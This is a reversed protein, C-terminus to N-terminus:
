KKKKSLIKKPAVVPVPLTEGRDIAERALRKAEYWEPSFKEM